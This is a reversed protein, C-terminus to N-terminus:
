GMAGSILMFSYFSDSGNEHVVSSFTHYTLHGQFPMWTTSYSCATPKNVQSLFNFMEHTIHVYSLSWFLVNPKRKLHTDSWLVQEEQQLILKFLLDTPSVAEGLSNRSRLAPWYYTHFTQARSSRVMPPQAAAHSGPLHTNHNVAQPHLLYNWYPTAPSTSLALNPSNWSHWPFHGCGSRYNATSHLDEPDNAPNLLAPRQQAILNNGCKNLFSPFFGGFRSGIKSTLHAM